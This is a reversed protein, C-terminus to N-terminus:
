TYEGPMGQCKTIDWGRECWYHGNYGEYYNCGDGLKNQRKNPNHRPKNKGITNRWSRTWMDESAKVGPM